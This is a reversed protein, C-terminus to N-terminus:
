LHSNIHKEPILTERHACAALPVHLLSKDNLSDRLDGPPSKEPPTLDHTTESVKPSARRFVAPPLMRWIRPNRM